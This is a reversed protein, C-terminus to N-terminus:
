GKLYALRTTLTEYLYDIAAANAGTLLGNEKTFRSVALAV